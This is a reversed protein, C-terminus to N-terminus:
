PSTWNFFPREMGIVPVFTWHVQYMEMQFVYFTGKRWSNLLNNGNVTEIIRLTLVDISKDPGTMICIKRDVKKIEIDESAVTGDLL